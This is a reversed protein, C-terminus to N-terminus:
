KHLPCDSLAGLGLCLQQCRLCLHHDSRGNRGCHLEDDREHALLLALLDGHRVAVRGEHPSEGGAEDVVGKLVQADEVVDHVAVTPLIEPEGSVEVAQGLNATVRM